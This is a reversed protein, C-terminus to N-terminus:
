HENRIGEQWLEYIGVVNEEPSLMIRSGYSMDLYQVGGRSAIDVIESVRVNTLNGDDKEVTVNKKVM